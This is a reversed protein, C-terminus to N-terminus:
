LEKYEIENCELSIYGINRYDWYIKWIGKADIDAKIDWTMTQSYEGLNLNINLNMVWKFHFEIINGNPAESLITLDNENNQPWTISKLTLDGTPINSFAQKTTIKMHTIVGFQPAPFRHGTAILFTVVVRKLQV